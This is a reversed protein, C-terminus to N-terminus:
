NLYALVRSSALVEGGLDDALSQRGRDRGVAAAMGFCQFECGRGHSSHHLRVPPALM